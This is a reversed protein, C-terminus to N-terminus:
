KREKAHRAREVVPLLRVFADQLQGRMKYDCVKYATCFQDIATEADNFATSDMCLMGVREKDWQSKTINRPKDILTHACSAGYLGLDGCVESDYVIVHACSVIGILWVASLMARKKFTM